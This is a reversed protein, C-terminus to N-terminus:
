APGAELPTIALLMYALLLLQPLHLLQLLNRLMELILDNPILRLNLFHFFLALLDKSVLVFLDGLNLFFHLEFVLLNGLESLLHLLEFSLLEFGLLV